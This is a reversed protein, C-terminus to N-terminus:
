IRAALNKLLKRTVEKHEVNAEDLIFIEIAGGDVYGVLKTYTGFGSEEISSTAPFDFGKVDEEGRDIAKAYYKVDLESFRVTLTLANGNGDGYAKYICSNGSPQSSLPNDNALGLAHQTAENQWVSCPEFTVSQTRSQPEIVPANPLLRAIEDATTRLREQDTKMGTIRIFIANENHEFGYGFPIPKGWATDSVLNANTGPGTQAKLETKVDLNYRRQEIPVSKNIPEVTVVISFGANYSWRCKSNSVERRVLEYSTKATSKATEDSLFPCPGPETVVPPVRGLAADLDIAALSLAISKKDVTSESGSSQTPLDQGDNTTSDSGCGSLTTALICAAITKKM